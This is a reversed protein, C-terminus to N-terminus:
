QDPPQRPSGLSRRSTSHADRCRGCGRRGVRVRGSLALRGLADVSVSGIWILGFCDNETNLGSSGQRCDSVPAAHADSRIGGLRQMGCSWEKNRVALVRRRQVRVSVRVVVEKTSPRVRQTHTNQSTCRPTHSRASATHVVVRHTHRAFDLGINCYLELLLPFVCRWMSCVTVIVGQFRCFIAM